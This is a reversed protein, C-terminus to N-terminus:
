GHNVQHNLTPVADPKLRVYCQSTRDFCEETFHKSCLVSYKTAQWGKKNVFNVWAKQRSSNIPFRCIMIQNDCNKSFQLYHVPTSTEFSIKNSSM